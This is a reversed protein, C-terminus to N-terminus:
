NKICTKIKLAHIPAKFGKMQNKLTSLVMKHQEIISQEKFIKSIVKVSFHNGFGTTDIVIVEADLIKSLIIKKIEYVTM